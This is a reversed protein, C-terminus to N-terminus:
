SKSGGAKGPSRENRTTAKFRLTAKFLLSTDIAIEGDYTSEWCDNTLNDVLRVFYSGNAPM